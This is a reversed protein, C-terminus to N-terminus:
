LVEMGIMECVEEYSKGVFREGDVIEIEGNEFMKDVAELMEKNITGDENVVVFKVFEYFEKLTMSM